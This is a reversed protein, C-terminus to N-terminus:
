SKSKSNWQTLDISHLYEFIEEIGPLLEQALETYAEGNENLRVFLPMQALTATCPITKGDKGVNHIEGTNLDKWNGEPLYVKRSYKNDLIPAVLFDDGFLYEDDINYAYTDDQWELALIRMLPMGTECAIESYRSIYPTLLEHLKLWGRYIDTIYSMEGPEILYVPNGDADTVVKWDGKVYELKYQGEAFQFAHRVKGHQQMCITFATFQTGRVFVQAEYYPNQSADGYQYGSMDYSMFPVGSMGSTLCATLQFELSEYCRKQDGAWMYPARQAGIGGGRTYCMGSDPKDSIMEWFMACFAAPYWHHTGSTETDKNYFNLQNYEPIGECFDIKCGDVGIENALMDWYVEFFWDVANPNTIDLYYREKGGAADPNNTETFPLGQVVVGDPRTMTMLYGPDYGTMSYGANGVAMYVLFKKGLSHVYDCLEKLDKHKNEKYPGWGEALIGTWPLDNAEMYAIADYVGTERGGQKESSNISVSWKQSLEPGYRCILMGYTWEEPAKAFGSLCSYGYIADSMRDCTFVYCDVEANVIEASWVDAETFSGSGLTWNMEEYVNLFIGSGRTFCLLPIVMYCANSRSWVDKTFMNIKKGRQNASDFREGTGFLGENPLIDGEVYSGGLGSSLSTITSANKGSPTQFELKFNKTSLVVSSGDSATVTYVDSGNVTKRTVSAFKELNLVPAEGLSLSLRQSAGIDDFAEHAKGKTQIRWGTATGTFSLRAYTESLTGKAMSFYLYNEDYTVDSVPPNKEERYHFKFNQAVSATKHEADLQLVKEILYSIAANLAVDNKGYIYFHDGAAEVAFDNKNFDGYEDYVKLADMRAIKGIRIEHKTAPASDHAINLAVGTANKIATRILEAQAILQESAHIPYVITFASGDGNAFEILDANTSPPNTPDGNQEGGTTGTDADSTCGILCSLLMSLLLLLSLLRTKM